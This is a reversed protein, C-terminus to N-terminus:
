LGINKRHQALRDVGMVKFIKNVLDIELWDKGNVTAKYYTCDTKVKWTSNDGPKADGPDLENHRGRAVIEVAQHMGSGEEAYSGMFRILSADVTDAGFDAVIEAQPGNYTHEIELKDIAKHLAVPGLMGAGHYDETKIALKPLKIEVAEDIFTHGNVFVNFMRLTRPLAM